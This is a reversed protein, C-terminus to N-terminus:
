SFQFKWLKVNWKLLSKKLSGQISLDLFPIGTPNEVLIVWWQGM